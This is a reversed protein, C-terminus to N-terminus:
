DTIVEERVSTAEATASQRGGGVTESVFPLTVLVASKAEFSLRIRRGRSVLLNFIIM